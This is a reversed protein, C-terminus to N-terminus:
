VRSTSRLKGIWRQLVEGLRAATIPKTVFDDMGAEICLERDGIMANATMAVIPIRVGVQRLRRTTEYGDLEPMMCDMLIADYRQIELRRLVELGNSAVDCTYGLKRLLGVGVKQNVENDEALLVHAARLSSAHELRTSTLIRQQSRDQALGEGSLIAAACQLLNARRVPKVLFGVFGQKEMRKAEGAGGLSTLMVLPTSALTEDSCVDQGFQEGDREPMDHDVFVLAYPRGEERARHMAALGAAASAAEDCESGWSRAYERILRRNTANDDVVLMRARPISPLPAPPSPAPGRAPRCPLTFFFNSGRGVESEVGIEGGMLTVLQKSIALGLGTGGYKRTTSADVQSFLQFLRAMRDKPIGVGTDRVCFRLSQKPDDDALDPSALAVDIVVEGRETFKMGNSALNLLVQRLRVPDGHIRAPVSPRVWSVLEIGQKDARHALTQLSEEVLQGLDFDITELEMRGAEIKSFDLIDNLLVLLSEASHLVTVATERQHRDLDTDLLLTTMGIVGNMPTRIEHSMNALFQSKAITAAKAEEMSRRLQDNVDGLEFRRRRVDIGLQMRQEDLQTEKSEIERLMRNFSEILRSTEESDEDDSSEQARLSYDADVSIKRALNSLEVIPTSIRAQLRRALFWSLAVCAVWGGVLITLMQRLRAYMPSLDSVVYLTAIDKDDLVIPHFLQLRGESDEEPLDASPTAPLLDDEHGARRWEAFLEGDRHFVRMAVINTVGEAKAFEERVYSADDYGLAQRLNTGFVDAVLQLDQFLVRKAQHWDYVAFLLTGLLVVTSSTTVIIWTIRRGLSSRRPQVPTAAREAAVSVPRERGSSSTEHNEGSM